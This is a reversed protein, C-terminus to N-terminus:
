DTPEDIPFTLGTLPLYAVGDGAAFDSDGVANEHRDLFLTPTSGGVAESIYVTYTARVVNTNSILAVPQSGSVVTGLTALSAPAAEYNIQVIPGLGATLQASANLNVKAVGRFVM